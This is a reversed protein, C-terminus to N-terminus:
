ASPKVTITMRAAYLRERIHNSSNRLSVSPVQGGSLTYNSHCQANCNYKYLRLDLVGAMSSRACSFCKSCVSFYYPIKPTIEIYAARVSVRKIREAVKNEQQIREGVRAARLEGPRRLACLM